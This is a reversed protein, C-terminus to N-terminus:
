GVNGWPGNGEREEEERDGLRSGGGEVEGKYTDWALTRCMELDCVVQM